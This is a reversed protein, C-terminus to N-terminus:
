SQRKLFIMEKLSLIYNSDLCSSCKPIPWYYFCGKGSQKSLPSQTGKFALLFIASGLLSLEEKVGKAHSMFSYRQSISTSM